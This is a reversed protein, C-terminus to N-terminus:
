FIANKNSKLTCVSFSSRNTTNPFFYITLSQNNCTSLHVTQKTKCLFKSVIQRHGVGFEHKRGRCVVARKSAVNFYLKDFIRIKTSTLHVYPNFTVMSRRVMASLICLPCDTPSMARQGLELLCHPAVQLLFAM